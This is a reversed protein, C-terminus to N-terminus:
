PDRGAALNRAEIEEGTSFSEYVKGTEVLKAVVDAYIDFRQSQRYPEHPGGM